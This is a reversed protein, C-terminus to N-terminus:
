EGSMMMSSDSSLKTLEKIANLFDDGYLTRTFEFSREDRSVQVFRDGVVEHFRRPSDYYYEQLLPIIEHYWIFHLSEVGEDLTNADMLKVLYSHGIQHDRDYNERIRMNITQLLELAIGTITRVDESVDQFLDALVNYDPMMEIFGFRRRLAVDVLAISKDASNMTGIIYLNPPVAFHEKSYPLTTIIENSECYRKDAELLTILEGFIRSIDGRNIEDIILYFPYDRSCELLKMKEIDELVPISEFENWQKEIGAQSFLVNLAKRSVRKFIGEIVRYSLDGDNTSVPRLGEIFDEYGFSPHFTVFEMNEVTEHFKHLTIGLSDYTLGDSLEIIRELENQRISKLSFAMKVRIFDSNKLVPDSKMEGFTPGRFQHVVEFEISDEEKRICQVVTTFRQPDVAIYALAINGEQLENYYTQWNRRSNWEYSFRSKPKLDPINGDRPQYITLSYVQQDLLSEELVEYTKNKQSSSYNIAHYTKGTGPPGYLIIQKKQSLLDRMRLITESEEFSNVEDQIESEIKDAIWAIGAITWLPNQTKWVRKFSSTNVIDTAFHGAWIMQKGYGENDPFSIEYDLIEGLKKWRGQRFDVFRSPYASSLLVSCFAAAGSRDPSRKTNWFGIRTAEDIFTDIRGAAEADNEPLDQLLDAILTKATEEDKVFNNFEIIGSKSGAAWCNTVIKKFEIFDIDPEQLIDQLQRYYTNRNEIEASALVSKLEEITTNLTAAVTALWQFFNKDLDRNM